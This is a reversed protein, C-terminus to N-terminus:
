SHTERSAETEAATRLLEASARVTWLAPICSQFMRGLTHLDNVVRRLHEEAHEYSEIEVCYTAIELITPLRELQERLFQIDALLDQKHM